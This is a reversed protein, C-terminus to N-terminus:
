ESVKVMSHRIIKEKVKYGKQFTQVINGSEMGEVAETMVANHLEPDFVGDSPIETLGEKTLIDALKKHVLKVGDAWGEAKEDSEAVRDFDDLVPLLAKICDRKGEDYSDLRVTANRKRYNDFDAQNRQLLAITDDLKKQLEDIHKKVTELEEQTMTVTEPQKETQQEKETTEVTEPKQEAEHPKNKKSAM